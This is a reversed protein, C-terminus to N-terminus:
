QEAAHPLLLAIKGVPRKYMGTATKVTAVRVLGDKRRHVEIIKALPWKTPVLSDEKM